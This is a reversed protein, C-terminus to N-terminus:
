LFDSYGKHKAVRVSGMFVEEEDEDNHEEAENDNVCFNICEAEDYWDNWSDYATSYVVIHQCWWDDESEERIVEGLKYDIVKYDTGIRESLIIGVAEYKDVEYNIMVENILKGLPTINDAELKDNDEEVFNHADVNIAHLYCAALLDRAIGVNSVEGLNDDFLQQLLNRLYEAEAEESAEDDFEEEDDVENLYESKLEDLSMHILKDHYEASLNDYRDSELEYAIDNDDGLLKDVFAVYKDFNTIRGLSNAFGYKEAGEIATDRLQYYSDIQSHNSFEELLDDFNINGIVVDDNYNYFDINHTTNNFQTRM